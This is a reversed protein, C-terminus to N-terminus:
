KHFSELIKTNYILSNQDHIPGTGVFMQVPKQGLLDAAVRQVDSANVSMISKARKGVFDPPLGEALADVLVNAAALSSKFNKTAFSGALFRQANALEKATPGDNVLANIEAHIETVAEDISERPVFTYLVIQHSLTRDLLKTKIGYVLGLDKRLRRFLRSGSEGGLVHNVIEAAARDPSNLPVSPFVMRIQTNPRDVSILVNKDTQIHTAPKALVLSGSRPLNGFIVDLQEALEAASIAGVVAVNLTDLQFSSRHLELLDNRNIKIVSESTGKIARAYPHNPYLIKRLAAVGIADPKKANSLSAGIVQNRVIEMQDTDFRPARIAKGLLAFAAERRDVLLRASGVMKDAYAFFNIEAGAEELAARFSESDLEAAGENMLGSMLHSLGEKGEPDLFAGGDFRFRIAIMPLSHDEILWARIGGPSVIDQAIYKREAKLAIPWMITSFFLFVALYGYKHPAAIWHKM